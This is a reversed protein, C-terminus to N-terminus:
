NCRRSGGHDRQFAYYWHLADASGVNHRVDGTWQDIDVPATAAGVFRGEGSAGTTNAPPDVAAAGTLRSRDRRRASRRAPRRQQYRHGAAAADGRLHRLLVHPKECDARRPQRRVPEAPVAVPPCAAPQLIARTSADNRFFEFAEGQFDNVGSRTAINVIAGSNRGYEASFTSNDVKFESVTNISPQFTIQNQAPDNLNIGNIM